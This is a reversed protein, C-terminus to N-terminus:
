ADAPEKGLKAILAKERDTLPWVVASDESVCADNHLAAIRRLNAAADEADIKRQTAERSLLFGAGFIAKGEARQADLARTFSVESPRLQLAQGHKALKNVQM